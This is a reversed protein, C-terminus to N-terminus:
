RNAPPNIFKAPPNIFEAIDKIAYYEPNIVQGVQSVAMLWCVFVGVTAISLPVSVMIGTMDDHTNIKQWNKILLRWGAYVIGMSITTWLMDVIFEVYQQRILIEWLEPAAVGLTEAAKQIGQQLMNIMQQVQEENM